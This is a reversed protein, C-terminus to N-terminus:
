RWLYGKGSCSRCREPATSTLSAAGSPHYFGAPLVGRGQCVPCTHPRTGDEKVPPAPYTVTVTPPKPEPPLEIRGFLDEMLSM